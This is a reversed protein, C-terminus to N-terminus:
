DEWTDLVEDKKHPLNLRKEMVAAAVMDGGVNVSTRMMDLIRDVALVLAIGETPIGVMTLITILMALSGGPVGPAGVSSAVALALLVGLDSPSLSIGYVQALFLVVVAQYVATGGMNATAGLPIVLRGISPHIGANNEIARLTVPMTASSSSTSFAIILPERVQSIFTLPSRGAMVVLLVMYMVAVGALAIIFTGVYVSVGIFATFGVKIMVNALLGFVAIPAFKMLWGVISMSASQVSALLDILPKAEKKPIALLAIGFIAAAIVIQLLAGEAMSAMPNTPFVGVIAQPITGDGMGLGQVDMNAAGLGQARAEADIYTGPAIVKAVVVGIAVAAATTAVFFALVGGGLKKVSDTDDGSAIGLAISSIVLPIVVFRILTLFMNGPLALWGGITEATDRAILNIDPGLIFGVTVGLALGILVKLWLKDGAPTEDAKQITETTM